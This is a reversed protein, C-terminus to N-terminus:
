EVEIYLIFATNSSYLKEFVKHMINLFHPSIYNTKEPLPVKGSM